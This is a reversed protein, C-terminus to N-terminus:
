IKWKDDYNDLEIHLVKRNDFKEKRRMEEVHVALVLDIILERVLIMLELTYNYLDDESIHYTLEEDVYPEDINFM